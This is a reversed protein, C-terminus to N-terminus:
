LVIRFATAAFWSRRTPDFGGSSEEFPDAAGEALGVELSIRSVFANFWGGVFYLVRESSLRGTVAGPDGAGRPVSVEADGRHRDWGVGGMLGLVFWNKGLVARLSSVELDTTARGEEGDGLAIRGHWRRAASISIGPLTFSERLIGLRAGVGAGSSRGSAFGASTPLRVLSYSGFLDLSFLGGFGPSPQFGNLVGAVATARLGFLSLARQDGRTRGEAPALDPVGVRAGLATVSLGVRPMAGLRRGLTSSTGALDSGLASALGVGRQVALAALTTTRCAAGLDSRGGLCRRSLDQVGEVRSRHLGLFQGAAKPATAGAQLAALACLAVLLPPARRGAAARM